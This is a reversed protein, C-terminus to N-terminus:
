KGIYFGEEDFSLFCSDILELIAKKLADESGFAYSYDKSKDKLHKKTAIFLKELWLDVDVEQESSLLDFLEIQCAEFVRYRYSGKEEDTLRKYEEVMSAVDRAKMGLKIKNYTKDVQLIKEKLNRNDDPVSLNNWMTYIPDNTKDDVDKSIRLFINEVHTGTVHKSLIDTIQENESFMEILLDIAIDEKNDINAYEFFNRNKIINVLEKKLQVDDYQGFKWDIKLLFNKWQNNDFKEIVKIYGTEKKGNYQEKYEYILRKKICELVDIDLKKNLLYELIPNKPLTIALKKVTGSNIEKTYNINTYFCFHLNPSMDYQLWNDLFIILSNVVEPSMFSFKKNIDYNKDGETYTIIGSPSVTKIYVDDLYETSAFVCSKSEGSNLKELLLKLARMRQLRFGKSQEGADRNITKVTM